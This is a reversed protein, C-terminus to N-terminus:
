RPITMSLTKKRTWVSSRSTRGKMRTVLLSRGLMATSTLLDTRPM